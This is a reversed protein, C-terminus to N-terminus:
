VFSVSLVAAAKHDEKPLYGKSAFLQIPVLLKCRSDFGGDRLQVFMQTECIRLPEIVFYPPLIKRCGFPTSYLPDVTFGCKIQHFMACLVEENHIVIGQASIQVILPLSIFSFIVSCPFLSVPLKPFYHDVLFCLESRDAM